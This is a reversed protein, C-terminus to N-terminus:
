TKPTRESAAEGAVVEVTRNPGAWAMRIQRVFECTLIAKAVTGSSGHRHEPDELLNLEQACVDICELMLKDEDEVIRAEKM